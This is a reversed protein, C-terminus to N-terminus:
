ISVAEPSHLSGSTPSLSSHDCECVGSNTESHSWFSDGVEPLKVISMEKLSNQFSGSHFPPLFLLFSSSPPLSFLPLPSLLPPPLLSLSSSCFSLLEWHCMLVLKRCKRYGFVGKEFLLARIIFFNPEFHACNLGGHHPSKMNSIITVNYRKCNSCFYRNDGASSSSVDM